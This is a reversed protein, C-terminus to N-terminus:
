GGGGYAEEYTPLPLYAAMCTAQVHVTPKGTYRSTAKCGENNVPYTGRYPALAAAANHGTIWGNCSVRFSGAPCFTDVSVIDSTSPNSPTYNSSFDNSDYITFIMSDIGAVATDYDVLMVDGNSTQYSELRTGTGANGLDETHDSLSMNFYAATVVNDDETVPLLINENFAVDEGESSSGIEVEDDDSTIAGSFEIDLFRSIDLTYFAWTLGNPTPALNPFNSPTPTNSVFASFPGPGPGGSFPGPTPAAAIFNNHFFSTFFNQSPAEAKKGGSSVCKGKSYVTGFPCVCANKKSNPVKGGTCSQCTGYKTEIKTSPCKCTSGTWQKGTPCKCAKSKSDWSQGGKCAALCSSGNWNPKSSPCKCSKGDFYQGGSCKICSSGNWNFGSGCICMKKGGSWYQGGTCAAVCSKGDWNPKSSPCECRNSKSNWNKGGTCSICQSGSWNTGSPCECSNGDWYRGGSCSPTVCQGLGNEVKGSPCVCKNGVLVKGGSCSLDKPPTECRKRSTNWVQGSKCYVCKSNDWNYGSPCVCSRGNWYKGGSCSPDPDKAKAVCRKKSNDWQQSSSCRVCSSGTWNYGSSCRCKSGDFYQGGTCSPTDSICSKTKSDWIYGSGCTVCTSGNWNKGSPCECVGTSPNNVQGGTCTPYIVEPFLGGFPDKKVDGSTTYGDEFPNAFPVEFDFGPQVYDDVVNPTWFMDAFEKFISFDPLLGLTGVSALSIPADLESDFAVPALFMSPGSPINTDVYGVYGIAAPLSASRAKGVIVTRGYNGNADLGNNAKIGYYHGIIRAGGRNSDLMFAARPTSGTYDYDVVYRGNGFFSSGYEDAIGLGIDLDIAELHIAPFPMRALLSGVRVEPPHQMLIALGIVIIGIKALLKKM